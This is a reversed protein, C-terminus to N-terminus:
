DVLVTLNSGHARPRGNPLEATEGLDRLDRRPV